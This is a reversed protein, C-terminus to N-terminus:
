SGERLDALALQMDQPLPVEFIMEEGSVPHVLKLRTAHLLQRSARAVLCDAKRRDLPHVGKARRDDGYLFDGVVPHAKLAFHVRIQHTRGTELTVECHQVFGFDELVRFRTTASRGGQEVVAMKHRQVPHRGIDGTLVGEREDWSGWSITHYTRGMTRTQLQESLSRQARDTLAVAMLGTTDKDLRHVIGPRLDDGTQALGSCHHLLANVLTGDPHGAAPHVVMGAAKNVILIADDEYVIELPIDQAVAELPQLPLPSYTIDDGAQVRFGKRRDKGNVRARGAEVDAQIRTRSFDPCCTVLYADLRLGDEEPEVTFRFDPISLDNMPVRAKALRCPNM